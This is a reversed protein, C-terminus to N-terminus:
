TIESKRFRGEKGPYRLIAKNRDSTIGWIQGTKFSLVGIAIQLQTRNMKIQPHNGRDSFM